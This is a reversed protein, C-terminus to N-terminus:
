FGVKPIVGVTHALTCVYLYVLQFYGIHNQYIFTVNVPVKYNFIDRSKVEIANYDQM